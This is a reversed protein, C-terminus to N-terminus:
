CTNKFVESVFNAGQDTQVITPTGYKLVVQSVFVRAVTEADQQSIPTAVVYKSLDDQFTLIYRNGTTLPPLLGVIDLYCKDFLHNATSMLDM